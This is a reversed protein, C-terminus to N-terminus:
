WDKWSGAIIAMDGEPIPVITTDSSGDWYPVYVITVNGNINGNAQEGIISGYITGGNMKFSGIVYVVGYVKDSTNQLSFDGNVILIVPNDFSGISGSVAFDGEHWIVGSMNDDIIEDVTTVYKDDPDDTPTAEKGDPNMAWDKMGAKDQTFFMAFLDDTSLGALYPDEDIIDLAEGTNAGANVKQANDPEASACKDDSCGERLYTEEDLGAALAEAKLDAKSKNGVRLYTDYSGTADVNDATWLTTNTYRNIITMTGNAKQMVPTTIAHKPGKGESDDDAPDYRGLCQTTTRVATCDDSWGRAVVLGRTMKDSGANDGLCDGDGDTDTDESVDNQCDCINDDDIDFYFESLTVQGSATDTLAEIYTGVDENVTPDANAVTCSGVAPTVNTVSVTPLVYDVSGDNDHDMGGNQFYTVAKEMAGMAAAEAQTSRFNESTMKTDLLVVNSSYLTVLTISLLLSIAIFLSAAGQQRFQKSLTKM